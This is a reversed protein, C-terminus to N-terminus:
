SAYGMVWFIFLYFLILLFTCIIDFISLVKVTKDGKVLKRAIIGFLFGFFSLFLLISDIWAFVNSSILPTFIMIMGLVFSALPIVALTIALKKKDVKMEKDQM